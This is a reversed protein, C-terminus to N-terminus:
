QLGKLTAIKANYMAELLENSASEFGGTQMREQMAGFIIAADMAAAIKQQGDAGLHATLHMVTPMADALVNM